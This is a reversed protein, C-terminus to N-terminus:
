RVTYYPIPLNNNGENNTIQWGLFHSNYKNYWGKLCKIELLRESNCDTMDTETENCIPDSIRGGGNGSGNDFGSNSESGGLFVVYYHVHIIIILSTQLRVAKLINYSDVFMILMMTLGHLAIFFRKGHDM